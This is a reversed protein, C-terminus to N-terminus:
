CCRELSTGAFFAPFYRLFFVGVNAGFPGNAVGNNITSPRPRCSLSILRTPSYIIIKRAVFIYMSRRPPKESEPGLRLFFGSVSSVAAPLDKTPPPITQFDPISVASYYRRIISPVVVTARAHFAPFIATFCVNWIHEADSCFRHPM